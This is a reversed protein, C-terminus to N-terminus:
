VDCLFTESGTLLGKKTKYHIILLFFAPYDGGVKLISISLSYKTLLHTVMQILNAFSSSSLNALDKFKDWLCFQFTM